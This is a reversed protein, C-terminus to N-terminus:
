EGERAALRQDLADLAALDDVDIVVGPDNVACESAVLRGEAFLRKPGLDGQLDRIAALATPAFLVPHGRRDRYVPIIADPMNEGTEQARTFAAILAAVTAPQVAPMDGLMVFVGDLHLGGRDVAEHLAAIGAKLSEAMGEDAREATVPTFGEKELLRATRHAGPRVVGIRLGIAPHRFPAAAWALLPRGRWDAHLKDGGFRRAVGAALLIVAFQPRRAPSSPPRPTRRREPAPGLLGGIALGALARATIPLGAALRELVLDAGQRAPSRASSPLVVIPRRGIRATILLNGPEVGLGFSLIRGGCARIAGPVIDDPAAAAALPGIVIVTERALRRHLRSLLSALADQRHPTHVVEELRSGIRMLRGTLAGEYSRPPSPHPSSPTTEVLVFPRPRFPHLALPPKAGAELLRDAAAMAERPLALPIVKVSAVRAGQWVPTEEPRTAIRFGADLANLRTILRRDIAPLGDAMALIDARGRAVAGVQLHAGALRAALHRAADDEMLDDAAPRIVALEHHGAALLAAIDDATLRHGKPLRRGGPLRLAHALIAGAAAPTPCSVIRM